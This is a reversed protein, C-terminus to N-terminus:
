RGLWSKAAEAVHVAPGRRVTCEPLSHIFAPGYFKSGVRSDLM